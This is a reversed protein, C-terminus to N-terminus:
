ATGSTDDKPSARGKCVYAGWDEMVKRVTQLRHPRVFAHRKDYPIVHGLCLGAVIPPVGTDACWQRFSARFSYPIAKIRLARLLASLSSSSIPRNSRNPFVLGDGGGLERADDLLSLAQSSLPLGSATWRHIWESVTWRAREPDMDEWRAGRVEGSRAATLVLFEFALKTAARAESARVASLVEAVEEHPVVVPVTARRVRPLAGAIAEGAPNDTRFGNAIAWGMVRTIQSRVKRATAPKTVSIPELVTLINRPEINCIRLSGIHPHVHLELSRQWDKVQRPSSGHSCLLEQVTVAAESFTPVHARPEEASLDNGSHAEPTTLPNRESKLM